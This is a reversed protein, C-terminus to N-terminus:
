PKLKKLTNKGADIVNAVLSKKEVVHWTSQNKKGINKDDVKTTSLSTSSGENRGLPCYVTNNYELDNKLTEYDGGPFVANFKAIVQAASYAYGTSSANLLGAVTQRGLANLGGGGQGVVQLLTKGPFANEFVSSFLTNPTYPAPYNGFHQSQKWYGPSCGEVSGGGCRYGPRDTAQVATLNVDVSMSDTQAENGLVKGNCSAQATALNVTLDGACWYFGVYHTSGDAYPLGTQSDALAYTTSALVVTASQSTTGFLPKEGVEFTNDGDDRWAFFEIGEALEGTSTSSDVHSEPENIGNEMDKLNVFNLCVWAPNSKIHISLSSTGTDGPKVDNFNWFKDVGPVLNKLDWTLAPQLVSNYFTKADIMLELGPTGTGSGTAFTGGGIEGRVLFAFALFALVGVLLTIRTATQIYTREM